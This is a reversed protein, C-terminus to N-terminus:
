LSMGGDVLITQGTVYSAADSLLFLAIKAVDEPTGFRGLPVLKLLQDQRKGRLADTMDTEIYGPAIANVRVNHKGAEKALTKTFAIVGAKSSAYNCQGPSAVVAGVSSINIINGKKEKLFPVIVARSYNFVSKLNTDLVADWDQENMMFLPKDITIGANNILVDLKGMDARVQEAVKRATNFDAADASISLGKRGQREIEKVVDDAMAKNKSYTIAVDAGNRALELAISRGIGRSGGTVLAVQDKLHM